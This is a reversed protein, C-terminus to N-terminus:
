RLELFRARRCSMSFVRVLAAAGPLSSIPVAQLSALTLDFAASLAAGRTFTHLPIPGEWASIEPFDGGGRSEFNLDEEHLALV